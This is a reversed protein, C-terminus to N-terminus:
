ERDAQLKRSSGQARPTRCYGATRVAYEMTTGQIFIHPFPGISRRLKRVGFPSAQDRMNSASNTRPVKPRICPNSSSPKYWGCGYLGFAAGASGPLDPECYPSEMQSKVVMPVDPVIADAGMARARDLMTHQLTEVSYNSNRVIIRAAEM